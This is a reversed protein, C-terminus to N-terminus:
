QGLFAKEAAAEDASLKVKCSAPEKDTQIEIHSARFVDGKVWEGRVELLDGSKLTSVWVRRFSGGYAGKADVRVFNTGPLKLSFFETKAEQVSFRGVLTTRSRSATLVDQIVDMLDPRVRVSNAEVVGDPNLRGDVRVPDGPRLDSPDYQEYGYSFLTPSEVAVRARVGSATMVILRDLHRSIRCAQGEIDVIAGPQQASAGAPGLFLLLLALPIRTTM